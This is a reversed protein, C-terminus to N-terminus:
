SYWTSGNNSIRTKPLRITSFAFTSSGDIWPCVNVFKDFCYFIKVFQWIIKNSLPVSFVIQAKVSFSLFPFFTIGAKVWYISITFSVYKCNEYFFYKTDCIRFKQQLQHIRNVKLLIDMSPVEQNHDMSCLLIWYSKDKHLNMSLCVNYELPLVNCGLYM